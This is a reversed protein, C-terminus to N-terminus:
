ILLTTLNKLSVYHLSLIASSFRSSITASGSCFVDFAAAFVLVEVAGTFLSWLTLVGGLLLMPEPWGSSGLLLANPSLTQNPIFSLSNAASAPRSRSLSSSNGVRLLLRDPSPSLLLGVLWCLLSAGALLPAFVLTSSLNFAAFPLVSSTLFFSSVLVASFPAFVSTSSLSFAELLFASSTLACVGLSSKSISLIRAAALVLVACTFSKFALVVVASAM